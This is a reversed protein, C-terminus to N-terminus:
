RGFAREVTRLATGDHIMSSTFRYLYFGALALENYKECDKEFGLGRNHRGHIWVGGEVEIAINHIPYAFDVRWKRVPHFKYEREPPPLKATQIQQLLDDEIESV